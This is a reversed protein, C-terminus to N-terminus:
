QHKLLIYNAAALLLSFAMDDWNGKGFSNVAAAILFGILFWTIEIQNKIYWLRFRDFM